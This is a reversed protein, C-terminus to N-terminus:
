RLHTYSVAYLTVLGEHAVMTRSRVRDIAAQANADTRYEPLEAFRRALTSVRARLRHRRRRNRMSLGLGLPDAFDAQRPSRSPNAVRRPHASSPVSMVRSTIMATGVGDLDSCLSWTRTTMM